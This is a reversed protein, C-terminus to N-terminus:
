RNGAHGGGREQAESAYESAAALADEDFLVRISGGRAWWRRQGSSGVHENLRRTCWAKLQDRVVEGAVSPASVVVHVHNSRCNVRHLRWGRKQAHEEVTTEVISRQALDLYIPQLDLRDRCWAELRPRPSEYGRHWRIWGRQDGPLWTGYCTLTLFFGLSEGHM